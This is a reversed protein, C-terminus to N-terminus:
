WHGTRSTRPHKLCVKRFRHKLGESVRNLGPMRSRAGTRSWARERFLAAKAANGSMMSDLASACLMTKKEGPWTTAAKTLAARAERFERKVTGAIQRAMAAHAYESGSFSQKRKRKGM